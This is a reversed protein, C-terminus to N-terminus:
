CILTEAISAGRFFVRTTLALSNFLSMRDEPKHIEGQCQKKICQRSEEEDPSKLILPNPLHRRKAFQPKSYIQFLFTSGIIKNPLYKLTPIKRPVLWVVKFIQIIQVNPKSVRSWDTM